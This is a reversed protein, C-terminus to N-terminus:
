GETKRRDTVMWGVPCNCKRILKIARESIILINCLEPSLEILCKAMLRRNAGDVAIVLLQAMLRRNACAVAIVLLQAMLRRSAGDVAIVLLQAM